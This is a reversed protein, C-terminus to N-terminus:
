TPKQMAALAARYALCTKCICPTFLGQGERLMAHAELFNSALVENERRAALLAAAHEEDSAAVAASWVRWLIEVAPHEYYELSGLPKRKRWEAPRDSILWGGIRFDPYVSALQSYAAEFQPRHVRLRSVSAIDHHHPTDLGCEPCSFTGQPEAATTPTPATM